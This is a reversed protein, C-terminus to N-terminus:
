PPLGAPCTATAFGPLIGNLVFCFSGEKKNWGYNGGKVIVDVEELDNQGVDGALLRGTARDFSMRFPNRLALAWIEGRAGPVRVFPNDRPIGYRGGPANHGDVDIRLIKGLVVNLNQANGGNPHGIVGPPPNISQDGDEDDSGGGDGTAI